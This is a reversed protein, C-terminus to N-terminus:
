CGHKLSARITVALCAADKRSQDYAHKISLQPICITKSNAPVSLLSRQGTNESRQFWRSPLLRAFYGFMPERLSARKEPMSRGWGGCNTPPPLFM